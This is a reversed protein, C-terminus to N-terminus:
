VITQNVNRITLLIRNLRIMKNETKKRETIDEVISDYYKVGGESDRVVTLRALAPIETGDKRRWHLERSVNGTATSMEQVFVDRDVPDVYLQGVSMSSLEEKSYGIIDCFVKNSFVFHGSPTARTVGLWINNLLREEEERAAKERSIDVLYGAAARKGEYESRAVTERVWMIAESKTVIRYDYDSRVEEKLINRAIGRVRTRDEPHVLESPDRGLVEDADYGTMKLFALNVYCLKGDQAVYIGVFPNGLLARSVDASLQNSSM